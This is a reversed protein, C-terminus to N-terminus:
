RSGWLGSKALEQRIIARFVQVDNQRRVDGQAKLFEHNLLEFIEEYSIKEDIGLMKAIELITEKDEYYKQINTEDRVVNEIEEVDVFKRSKLYVYVASRIRNYVWTSENWSKSKDFHKELKGLVYFYLEDYVSEDAHSNDIIKWIMKRYKREIEWFEM